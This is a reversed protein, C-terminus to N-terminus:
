VYMYTLDENQTITWVYNNAPLITVVGKGWACQLGDGQKGAPSITQTETDDFDKM